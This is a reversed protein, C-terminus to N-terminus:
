QTALIMWLVIGLVVALAAILVILVINLIHNTQRMRDSVENLDEEYDDLQERMQMTENLVQHRSAQESPFGVEISDSKEIKRQKEEFVEPEEGASKVDNMLNFVEASIDEVTREATEEERSATNRSAFTGKFPIDATDRDSRGSSAKSPPLVPSDEVKINQLINIQTNESVANGQDINYKKVESIVQDLYDEDDSSDDGYGLEEMLSHDPHFRMISAEPQKLEETNETEAATEKRVHLADHDSETHEEPAAFNNADIKNLRSVYGSLDKTSIEEDLDSQLSERLEKYKETRSMRAM